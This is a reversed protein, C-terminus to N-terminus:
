DLAGKLAEGLNQHLKEKEADLRQNVEGELKEKYQDLGKNRVVAMAQDTLKKLAQDAIQRPTAGSKGGLNTMEIKPLKLEYAKDLPLLRAHIIGGEFLLKRIILRPDAGNNEAPTDSTSPVGKSLNQKLAALNNQGTANLEFYVEPSQVIVHEIIITDESFSKLAIQTAIEGLSFAQPTDFGQPNDVTLGRIFGSGDALKIQVQDVLVATQTAESGYHEIAAKVISDLNSILYYVGLGVTILFVLLAGVAIKKM